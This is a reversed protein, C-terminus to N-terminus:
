AVYAYRLTFKKSTVVEVKESRGCSASGVSGWRANLLDAFQLGNIGPPKGIVPTWIALPLISGLM